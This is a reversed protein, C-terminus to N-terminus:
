PLDIKLATAIRKFEPSFDASITIHKNTGPISFSLSRALLMMEKLEFKELLLRNQKNCGHPRDGLIPHFVHSMHKRLQHMRGTEPLLRVLSYRSTQHKGHPIPIETQQITQVLTVADQLRGRDNILPYDITFEQQTYGRVIAMYEKAVEGQMFLENIKRLMETNLAYVLVGCTKRDLRHVPYVKKGIQDRLKYLAIEKAKNNLATRHVFYGYPKHIAIIEEDEYLIEFPDESLEINEGELTEVGM